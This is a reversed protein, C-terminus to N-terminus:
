YRELIDGIKERTLNGFLHDNVLMAPAQDCAGICGVVELAFKGDPTTEGPGIGLERELAGRITQAGKMECPVCRCIRIRNKAKGKRPLFSYFSAVGYVDSLSLDTKGATDEMVERSLRGRAGAERKLMPLLGARGMNRRPARTPPQSRGLTQCSGGPWSLAGTPCHEICLGCGLCEDAALSEDYGTVIKSKFGRYGIALVNKGAMQTCVTICKRCLICKSLERRVHPNDDEFPYFRPAPAKFRPAGVEQDSALNHLGCHDANPDNVCDGTHAALMLEVVARRAALVKPSRTHVVMGKSVPTHCSGALTRAGEIEVVCVRCVGPPPHGQIHCLTPIEIGVRRAAELITAGRRIKVRKGDIVAQTRFLSLM